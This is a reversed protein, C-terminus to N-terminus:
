HQFRQMLARALENLYNGNDGASIPEIRDAQLEAFESLKVRQVRGGSELRQYYAPLFSKAPFRVHEPALVVVARGAAVCETVMTVSDQTVFVREARGLIALMQKEPKESWWIAHALAGPDLSAQLLAEAAAGTRRSTTLLWRIGTRQTLANMGAALAQWDAPTYPHSRSRGGIVMAWVREDACEFTAAAQRAKEPTVATPILEIPVDNVGTELSSPTFVTHFWESPYPKREGIFVYPAGYRNALMRGLFVSKGGSSLILDPPAGPVNTDVLIRQEIFTPASKGASGMLWRLLSRQWGSFRRVVRIETTELAPIEASLANALGRSQALHGPSGEDVIWVRRLNRKQGLAESMGITQWGPPQNCM